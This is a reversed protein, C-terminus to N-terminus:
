KSEIGPIRSDMRSPIAVGSSSQEVSNFQHAPLKDIGLLSLFVRLFKSSGPQSPFSLLQQLEDTLIRKM